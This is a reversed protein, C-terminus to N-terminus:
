KIRSYFRKDYLLGTSKKWESNFIKKLFDFRYGIFESIKRYSDAGSLSALIVFLLFHPLDYRKGEARRHDEIQSLYKLLMINM